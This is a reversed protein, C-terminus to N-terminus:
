IMTAGEKLDISKRQSCVMLLDTIGSLIALMYKKVLIYYIKFKKISKGNERLFSQYYM